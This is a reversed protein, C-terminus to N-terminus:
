GDRQRPSGFEAHARLSLGASHPSPNGVGFRTGAKGPHGLAAVAGWCVGTCHSITTREEKNKMGKSELFRHISFGCRGAEYCSYV